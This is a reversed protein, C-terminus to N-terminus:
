LGGNADDKWRVLRVPPLEVEEGTAPDEVIVSFDFFSRHEIQEIEAQQEKTLEVEPAGEDEDDEDDSMFGDDIDDGSIIADQVLKAMPQRLIDEDGEHLFNAYLMYPGYSITAIDAPPTGDGGDNDSALQKRVDKLFRSLKIGGRNASKQSEKVIMRDWITHTEGRYGEVDEAPM